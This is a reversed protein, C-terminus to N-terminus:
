SLSSSFPFIIYHDKWSLISHMHDIKYNQLDKKYMLFCIKGPYMKLFNESFLLFPPSM